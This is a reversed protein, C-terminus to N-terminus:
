IVRQCSLKSKIKAFKLFGFHNRLVYIIEYNVITDDKSQINALKRFSMLSITFITQNYLINWAFIINNDLKSHNNDNSCFSIKSIQFSLSILSPEFLLVFLNRLVFTEILNYQDFNESAFDYSYYTCYVIIIINM